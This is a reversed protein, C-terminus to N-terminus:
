LSDVVEINGDVEDYMRWACKVCVDKIEKDVDQLQGEAENM